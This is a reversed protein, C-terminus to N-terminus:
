KHESTKHREQCIHCVGCEPDQCEQMERQEQDYAAMHAEVFDCECGPSAAAHLLKMASEWMPRPVDEGAEGLREIDWGITCNPYLDKLQQALDLGEVFFAKCSEPRDWEIRTM